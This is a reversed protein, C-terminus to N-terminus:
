NRFLDFGFRYTLGIGVTGEHENGAQVVPSDQADGVFYRYQALGEIRVKETVAFTTRLRAGVDKIGGDAEFPALEVASNPVGFYFDMYEDDAASITPGLSVELREHPTVILDAGAEGVFGNHGTVGYRVQAFARFPGYRFAAGPGIEVSADRDPIGELYAADVDDREGIVNFSPLISFQRERGTVVEGVVPLRLFRLAFLPLPTPEYIKASPFKPSLTVGGGLDFIIDRVEIAEPIEPEGLDAARAAPVASAIILGILIARV